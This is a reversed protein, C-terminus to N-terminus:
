HWGIEGGRDLAQQRAPPPLDEAKGRFVAPFAPVFNLGLYGSGLETVEDDLQPRLGLTQPSVHMAKIMQRLHAGALCGGSEAPCPALGAKVLTM